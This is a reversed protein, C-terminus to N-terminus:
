CVCVVDVVHHLHTGHHGQARRQGVEQGLLDLLQLLLFFLVVCSVSVSVPMPLSVFRSVSCSVFVASTSVVTVTGAVVVQLLDVATPSVTTVAQVPTRLSSM